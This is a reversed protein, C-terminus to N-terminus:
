KNYQKQITVWIIAQLEYGKIGLKNALNLTLEKIQGYAIRGITANDIKIKKNFCGRLHWIDVTLSNVDLYAMNHVFNFTKLSTDTITTNGKLINFAKFKNSHFTSVKVLEPSLGMNHAKIVTEADKINRDWKNRPSLASIVSAVKYADVNYKAALNNCIVNADSYWNLGRSIENNTASNFLNTLSIEIQKLEKNTLKKM